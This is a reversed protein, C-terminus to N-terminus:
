DIHLNLFLEVLKRIKKLFQVIDHFPHILFFKLFYFFFAGYLFFFINRSFSSVSIRIAIVYGSRPAIILSRHLFRIAVVVFKNIRAVFICLQAGNTCVCRPPSCAHKPRSGRNIIGKFHLLLRLRPACCIAVPSFVAAKIQREVCWWSRPM